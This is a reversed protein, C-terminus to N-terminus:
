MGNLAVGHAGPRYRRQAARDFFCSVNSTLPDSPRLLLIARRRPWSEHGWPHSKCACGRIPACAVLSHHTIIKKKLPFAPLWALDPVSTTVLWPM